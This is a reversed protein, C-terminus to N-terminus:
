FYVSAGITFNINDDWNRISGKVLQSSFENRIAINKLLFLKFGLSMVITVANIKQRFAISQSTGSDIVTGEVQRNTQGLGLKGYPRFIWDSPVFQQIWNLSYVLDHTMIDESNFVKTRNTLDQFSLEIGSFDTFHYGVSTRWARTWNFSEESFRSKYFSFGVSYEFIGASASVSEFLLVIGIWLSLKKIKM